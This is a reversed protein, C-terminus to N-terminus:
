FDEPEAEYLRLSKDTIGAEDWCQRWEALHASNVHAGLAARSEWRESVHVTNRDLVDVAYAYAICGAEARSKTIMTEMHPRAKELDAVKITGEVVIM